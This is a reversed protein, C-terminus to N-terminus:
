ATPSHIKFLLNLATEFVAAASEFETEVFGSADEFLGPINRLDSMQDVILRGEPLVDPTGTVVWRAEEASKDKLLIYGLSLRDNRCRYSIYRDIALVGKLKMGGIKATGNKGLLEVARFGKTGVSQRKATAATLDYRSNLIKALATLQAAAETEANRQEDASLTRTSRKRSAKIPRSAIEEDCMAILDNANKALANARLNALKADDLGSIKERTWAIM